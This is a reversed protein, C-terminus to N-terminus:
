SEASFENQLATRMVEVPAKKGTWIEFGIVGQNVLMDLGKFIRCGQADAKKLFGSIFPNFVADCVVLDKKLSDYNIDPINPDPYLGISTAQVLIDTDEPIEFSPTWVAYEAKASTRENLLNVLKEGTEKTRNVVTIASVGEKALEVTVARAAGGAGLIVVKKGKLDVNGDKLSKTFGKGDTNEGYALGNEFTITNVAGMVKAEDSIHDLLKVVRVKYPVTINVGRFGLIKLAQITGDFNEPAIKMNLYRYDLGVARCGAEIMVGTPNEDVPNGLVGLLESRYCKAM